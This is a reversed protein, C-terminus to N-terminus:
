AGLPLIFQKVNDLCYSLGPVPGMKELEKLHDNIKRLRYTEDLITPQFSYGGTSIIM